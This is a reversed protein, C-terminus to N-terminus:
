LFVDSAAKFYKAEDFHLEPTTCGLRVVVLNQSPVILVFQGEYGDMLFCDEPLGDKRPYTWFHAAYEGDSDPTVTSSYHVWAPPLIQEGNWMGDNLYLMGFKAWDRANAYMYSSGVFSGGEDTEMRASAMGLKSFLRRYPFELYYKQETFTSRILQQLINTTGSSYYFHSGPAFALESQSAFVGADKELFLMRTVASVKSYDEEFDLGSSMRLLHDITIQKRDDEKWHDFLNNKEINLIGDRVLIGVLANTVSKTMSWGLLPSSDDYGTAYREGVVKGDKVILLARSGTGQQIHEDLIAEIKLKQEEPLSSDQLEHNPVVVNIEPIQDIFTKGHSGELVCGIDPRFYAKRSILGLVTSTVSKEGENVVQKAFPVSYLDNAAIDELSRGAIFHCSCSIKANYGAGIGGYTLGYNIGWAMAVVLIALLFYKIPKSM